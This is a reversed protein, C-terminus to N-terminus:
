LILHMSSSPSICVLDQIEAQAPPEMDVDQEEEQPPILPIPAPEAGEFPPQSEEPAPRSDVRRRKSQLGTQSSSPAPAARQKRTHPKDRGQSEGLSTDERLHRYRTSTGILKGSGNSGGCRSCFCRVQTSAM